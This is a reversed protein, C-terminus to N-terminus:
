NNTDAVYPYRRLYFSTRGRKYESGTVGVLIQERVGAEINATLREIAAPQDGAPTFGSVLEFPQNNQFLPTQV